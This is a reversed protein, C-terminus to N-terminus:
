WVVISPDPFIGSSFLVALLCLSQMGWISLSVLRELHKAQDALM